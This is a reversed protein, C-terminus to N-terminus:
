ESRAFALIQRGLNLNALSKYFERLEKQYGHAKLNMEFAVRKQHCARGLQPDGVYNDGFLLFLELPFSSELLEIKYGEGLLLNTLTDKNFYNLHAPPAVWWQSLKHVKTACEQFINYDNPVDVVLIGGKNLIEKKIEKITGVPDALHELVNMMLVVDFRTDKFIKLTDMKMTVINLGQKQGYEVAEKAPDCGYCDAGKSQFYKLTHGWGCGFDLVKKGKLDSNTLECLTLYLDERISDNYEKDREQVELASNNFQPYASSYFEDAYYQAIEEQTPTPHVQYFGYKAHRQIAYKEALMRKEEQQKSIQTCQKFNSPEGIPTLGKSSPNYTM